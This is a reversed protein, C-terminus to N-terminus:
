LLCLLSSMIKQCFFIQDFFLDPREISDFLGSGGEIQLVIRNTLKQKNINFSFVYIKYYCFCCYIKTRFHFLTLDIMIVEFNM